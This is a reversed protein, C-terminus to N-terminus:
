YVIDVHYTDGAVRITRPAIKEATQWQTSMRGFLGMDQYNKYGADEWMVDILAYNPRSNILLVHIPEADIKLKGGVTASVTADFAAYTTDDVLERIAGLIVATSRSSKELSLM